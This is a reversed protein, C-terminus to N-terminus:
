IKGIIRNAVCVKLPPLFATSWCPTIAQKWAGLYQHFTAWYFSIRFVLAPWRGREWTARTNNESKENHFKRRKLPYSNALRRPLRKFPVFPLKLRSPRGLGLGRTERTVLVGKEKGELRRGRLSRILRFHFIEAACSCHPSPCNFHLIPLISHLLVSLMRPRCRTSSM